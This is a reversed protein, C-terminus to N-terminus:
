DINVCVSTLGRNINGLLACCNDHRPDVSKPGPRGAPEAKPAPFSRVRLVTTRQTSTRRDQHTRRSLADAGRPHGLYHSSRNLRKALHRSHVLRARRCPPRRHPNGLQRMSRHQPQRHPRLNRHRSPRLGRSRNPHIWRRHPHTHAHSLPLTHRRSLSRHRVFTCRRHNHCSDIGVGQRTM